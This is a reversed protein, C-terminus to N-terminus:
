KKGKTAYRRRFRDIRGEADLERAHGTWFPHSYASVDLRVVPMETGEVERKDNSTMTSFSVWEEGSSSDIFLVKHYDPHVGAKM